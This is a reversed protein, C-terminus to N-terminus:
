QNEEEKKKKKRHAGWAYVNDNWRRHQLLSLSVAVKSQICMLEQSYSCKYGSAELRKEKETSKRQWWNRSKHNQWSEKEREWQDKIQNKDEFRVQQTSMEIKWLGNEAFLIVTIGKM